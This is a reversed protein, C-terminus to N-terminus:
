FLPLLATKRGEESVLTASGGRCLGEEDEDATDTDNIDNGDDYKLPPLSKWDLGNVSDSDERGQEALPDQSTSNTSLVELDDEEPAAAAGTGSITVLRQEFLDTLWEFWV